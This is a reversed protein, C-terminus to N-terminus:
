AAVLEAEGHRVRRMGQYITRVDVGLRTAVEVWTLDEEDHLRLAEAYDFSRPVGNKGDHERGSLGYHKVVRDLQNSSCGTREMIEARSVGARYLAAINHYSVQRRAGGSHRRLQLPHMRDLKKLNVAHYVDSRVWEYTRNMAQMLKDADDFSIWQSRGELLKDIWSRSNGTQMALYDRASIKAWPPRAQRADSEAARLHSPNYYDEGQRVLWDIVLDRFPEVPLRFPSM